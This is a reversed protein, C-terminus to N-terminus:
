FLGKLRRQGDPEIQGIGRWISLGAPAKSFFLLHYMPAGQDNRLPGVRDYYRYGLTAVRKSFAEAYSETLREVDAETLTKGAYAKMMPLERWASNGWMGEIAPVSSSQAFLRENRTIGIGSPFLFIIDISRRSLTQFLEFRVEFGEPDVFALGLARSSLAQVVATAREHCDARELDVRHTQESPIRQRLAKVNERNRDGLIIRDFPPTTQLAILPSGPFERGSRREMDIGPGALLDIYVLSDWSGADRHPTM